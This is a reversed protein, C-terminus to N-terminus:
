HSGGGRRRRSRGRHHRRGGGRGFRAGGRHRRCGRRPRHDRLPRLARRHPARALPGRGRGRPAGGRWPGYFEILNLLVIALLTPVLSLNLIALIVWGVQTASVWKAYALCAPRREPSQRAARLWQGVMALRMIVYGLVLVRNDVHGGEEISHFLSPLGLAAICARGDPGDHRGPVGLRRHRLCLRVLLLQDLGLRDRLRRGRVRHPRGAHGEPWVHAFLNAAQGVAVVFTLDFLLELPTSARGREDPDRGSM